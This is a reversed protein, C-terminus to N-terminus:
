GGPNWLARDCLLRAYCTCPKSRPGGQMRCSGSTSFLRASAALWSAAGVAHGLTFDASASEARRQAHGLTFGAAASALEARRQERRRQQM